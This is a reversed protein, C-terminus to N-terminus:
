LGVAGAGAQSAPARGGGAPASDPQGLGPAPGPPGSEGPDPRARLGGARPGPPRRKHRGRGPLLRLRDARARGRL